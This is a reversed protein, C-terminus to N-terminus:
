QATLKKILQKTRKKAAQIIRVHKKYKPPKNSHHQWNPVRPTIMTRRVYSDLM